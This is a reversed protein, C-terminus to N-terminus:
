SSPVRNCHCVKASKNRQRKDQRQRRDSSFRKREDQPKRYWRRLRMGGVIVSFAPCCVQQEKRMQQVETAVKNVLNKM